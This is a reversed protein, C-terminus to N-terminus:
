RLVLGIGLFSAGAAVAFIVLAASLIGGTFWAAALPIHLHFTVRPSHAKGTPKTKKM